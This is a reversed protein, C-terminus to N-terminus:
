QHMSALQAPAWGQAPLNPPIQALGQCVRDGLLLAGPTFFHRTALNATAEGLGFRANFGPDLGAQARRLEKEACVFAFKAQGAKPPAQPKASWAVAGPQGTSPVTALLSAKLDYLYVVPAPCHGGPCQPSAKAVLGLPLPNPFVDGLAKTGFDCFCKAVNSLGSNAYEEQSNGFVVRDALFTKEGVWLSPNSPVSVYGNCLLNSYVPYVNSWGQTDSLGFNQEFLTSLRADADGNTGPATSLPVAERAGDPSPDVFACNLNWGPSGKLWGTGGWLGQFPSVCFSLSGSMIKPLLRGQVDQSATARGATAVEEQTLPQYPLEASWEAETYVGVITDTCANQGNFPLWQASPRNDQLQTTVGVAGPAPQGYRPGGAVLMEPMEGVLMYVAYAVNEMFGAYPVRTNSTSYALCGPHGDQSGTGVVLPLRFSGDTPVWCATGAGGGAVSPLKGDANNNLQQSLGQVGPQGVACGQSGYGPLGLPESGLCLAAPGRLQGIPQPVMWFGIVPTPSCAAVNRALVNQSNKLWFVGMQAFDSSVNPFVPAPNLYDSRVAPLACAGLNHDFVNLFEPGDEVFFGSGLTLFGVNNSVEAEATGHLTLWRSLSLWISCNRVLYERPHEPDPLYGRFARGYGALHFHIAYQAITGFNGPTGLRKLEVGDLCVACGNRFMTQGGHIAGCGRQGATGWLWHGQVAEPAPPQEKGCYPQSDGRDGPAYCRAFVELPGGGGKGDSNCLVSGGPGKSAKSAPTGQEVGSPAMGSAALMPATAVGFKGPAFDAAAGTFLQNCGGGPTAFDSTLRINRTLLAVHPVTDVKLARPDGFSRTLRTRQASHDFQLPDRLTLTGDPAAATVRAVEVGPVSGPAGISPARDPFAKLYAANAAANAQRQTADEDNLWVPLLGTADTPSAYQQPCALVLVEQGVWWSLDAGAAVKLSRAGKPYSGPALPAWTVAYAKPLWDVGVSLRDGDDFYPTQGSWANWTGHYEAQPGLAGALHVNGNFGGCLSKPGYGNGFVGTMGTYPAFTPKAGPLATDVGPAYVKYSYQSAPCGMVGYGGQAPSTLTLTFQGDFRFREDYTSGAQLLGGSEVLVFAVRLSATGAVLLAGGRRVVLGEYEAAGDLCATAGDELVLVKGPASLAQCRSLSPSFGRAHESWGSGTLAGSAGPQYYAHGHAYTLLHRALDEKTELGAELTKGDKVYDGDPTRGAGGTSTATYFEEPEALRWHGGSCPPPPPAPPAPPGAPAAAKRSVLVVVVVVAALGLLLLLLLGAQM